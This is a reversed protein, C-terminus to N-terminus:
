VSKKEQSIGCNRSREKARANILYILFMHKRHCGRWLNTLKNCTRNRTRTRAFATNYNSLVSPDGDYHHDIYNGYRYSKKRFLPIDIRVLSYPYQARCCLDFTFHNLLSLDGMYYVHLLCTSIAWLPVNHESNCVESPSKKKVSNTSLNHFSSPALFQNRPLKQEHRNRSWAEVGFM